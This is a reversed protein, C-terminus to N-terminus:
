SLVSPSLTSSASRILRLSSGQAIQKYRDAVSLLAQHITPVATYWTPRFEALWDFFAEPNFGPTCVVSSGAALAGLVGSILGHGHFLPLVSLLRDGPGLALAAGVNYASLCVSAHTLPVMKPRSTSGSTLLIFADDAGSALESEVIRRMPLDPISFAGAAGNPGTWLDIVPIGFTHAVRLSASDTDPRTILAAVRLEGFYRQCEDATFGPNLPVCVAGSAVAIVAVASQPGDPLVVAVRDRRGVGVSRLRHLTDNAAAWLAGYTIPPRGSGLIANGDPATRAHWALLEGLCSFAHSRANNGTPGDQLSYIIKSL